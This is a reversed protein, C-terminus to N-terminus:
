ERDEFDYEVLDSEYFEFFGQRKEERVYSEILYNIHRGDLYESELFEDYSSYLEGSYGFEEIYEAITMNEDIDGSNIDEFYDILADAERQPFIIHSRKWDLKYLEYILKRFNMENGWRELDIMELDDDLKYDTDDFDIGLEAAENLLKDSMGYYLVDTIKKMQAVTLNWDLLYTKINHPTLRSKSKFFDTNKYLTLATSIERMQAASYRPDAFLSIDLKNELGQRLIRMQEVTFGPNLLYVYEKRNVLKANIIEDKQLKTYEHYLGIHFRM